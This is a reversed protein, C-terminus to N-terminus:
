AGMAMTQYLQKKMTEMQHKSLPKWAIVLVVLLEQRFHFEMLILLSLPDEMVEVDVLAQNQVKDKEEMKTMMHILDREALLATMVLIDDM